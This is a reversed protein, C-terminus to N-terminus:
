ETRKTINNEWALNSRMDIRWRRTETRVDRARRTKTHLGGPKRTLTRESLRPKIVSREIGATHGHAAIDAPLVFLIRPEAEAIREVVNMLLPPGAGEKDAAVKKTLKLEGTSSTGRM